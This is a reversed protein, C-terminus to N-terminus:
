STSRSNISSSDLEDVRLRGSDPAEIAARIAAMEVDMVRQVRAQLARGPIARMVGRRDIEVWMQATTQGTDIPGLEMGWRAASTGMPGAFALSRPADVSTVNQARHRTAGFPLKARQEVRAGPVLPGAGRVWCRGVTPAWEPWRGVDCIYAWVEAVSRAITLRSESRITTASRAM